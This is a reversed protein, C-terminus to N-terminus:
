HAEFEKDGGAVQAGFASLRHDGDYGGDGDDSHRRADSMMARAM